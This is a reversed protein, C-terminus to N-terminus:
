DGEDDGEFVCKWLRTFFTKSTYPKQEEHYDFEGEARGM